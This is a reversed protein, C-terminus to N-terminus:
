QVLGAIPGEVLLAVSLLLLLFTVVGSLGILTWATVGHRRGVIRTSPWILLGAVVAILLSLAIEPSM